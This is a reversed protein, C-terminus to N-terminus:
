RQGPGRMEVRSPPDSDPPRLHEPVPADLAICDGTLAVEIAADISGTGVIMAEGVLEQDPCSWEVLATNLTGGDRSTGQSRWVQYLGRVEPTSGAIELGPVVSSDADPRRSILTISVAGTRDVLMIKPNATKRSWGEHPAVVLGLHTLERDPSCRFSSRIREFMPRSAQVYLVVDRRGCNGFLVHSETGPDHDQFAPGGGLETRQPPTTGAGFSKFQQQRLVPDDSFIGPIWAIMLAPSKASGTIYDGSITPPAPLEVSMGPLTIRTLVADEALREPPAYSTLLAVADRSSSRQVLRNVAVYIVVLLAVGGVIWLVVPRGTNRRQFDDFM